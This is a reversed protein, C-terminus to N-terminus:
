YIINYYPNSINSVNIMFKWVWIKFANSSSPTTGFSTIYVFIRATDISVVFVTGIILVASCCTKVFRGTCSKGDRFMCKVNFWISTEDIPINRKIVFQTSPYCRWTFVEIYMGRVLITASTAVFHFYFTVM